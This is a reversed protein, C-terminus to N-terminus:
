RLLMLVGRYCVWGAMVLLSTIACWKATDSLITLLNLRRRM